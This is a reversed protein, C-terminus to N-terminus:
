VCSYGSKSQPGRSPTPISYHFITTEWFLPVGVYVRFEVIRITPVGWFPVGLKPFCGYLKPYEGWGTVTYM